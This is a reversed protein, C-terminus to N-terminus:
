PASVAQLHAQLSYTVDVPEGTVSQFELAAATFHLASASAEQSVTTTGNSLIAILTVNGTAHWIVDGDWEFGPAPPLVRVGIVGDGIESSHISNATVFISSNDSQTNNGPPPLPSTNNDEPPNPMTTTGNDEPPPTTTTTGNNDAPPTPVTNNMSPIPYFYGYGYGSAQQQQQQAYAAPMTTMMPVAAVVTATALGALLFISTIIGTTKM